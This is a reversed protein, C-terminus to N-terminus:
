NINLSMLSSTPIPRHTNSMSSRQGCLVSNKRTTGRAELFTENGYERKKETQEDGVQIIHKICTIRYIGEVTAAPADIESGTRQASGSWQTDHRQRNRSRDSPVQQINMSEIKRASSRDDHDNCPFSAYEGHRAAQGQNVQGGGIYASISM